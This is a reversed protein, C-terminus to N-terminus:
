KYNKLHRIQLKQQLKNLRKYQKAVLKQPMKYSVKTAIRDINKNFVYGKLLTPQVESFFVLKRKERKYSNQLVNVRIAQKIVTQM